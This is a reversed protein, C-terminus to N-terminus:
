KGTSGFGGDGRETESLSEVEEFECMCVPIVMGQAIRDGQKITKRAMTMNTYLAKIDGRYDSDIVGVSNSMCLGSAGMSSRPFVLMVTGKPLEVKLNLSIKERKFPYITVTDKAYLDFCASGETAYTPISSGKQVKVKM